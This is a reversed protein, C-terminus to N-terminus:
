KKNIKEMVSLHRFLANVDTGPKLRIMRVNFPEMIQQDVFLPSLHKDVLRTVTKRHLGTRKGIETLWLWSEEANKLCKVIKILNEIADKRM